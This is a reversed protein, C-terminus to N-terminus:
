TQFELITMDPFVQFELSNLGRGQEEPIKSAYSASRHLTNQVFM